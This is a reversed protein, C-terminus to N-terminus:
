WIGGRARTHSVCDNRNKGNTRPSLTTHSPPTIHGRPAATDDTRYSQLASKATWGSSSQWGRSPHSLQQRGVVCHCPKSGTSSNALRRPCSSRCWLSRLRPWFTKPVSFSSSTQVRAEAAPGTRVKLAAHCTYVLCCSERLVLTSKMMLLVTVNWQPPSILPLTTHGGPLSLYKYACADLEM